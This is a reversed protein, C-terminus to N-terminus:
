IWKFYYYLTVGLGIILLILFVDMCFKSPARYKDVIVKLRKNTGELTRNTTSVEKDLGKIKEASEDIKEGMLVAAKNWEKVGNIIVEM